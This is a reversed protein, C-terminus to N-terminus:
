TSNAARTLAELYANLDAATMEGYKIYNVIGSSDIVFTTPMNFVGYSDATEKETDLLITLGSVSYEDLFARVEDPTEAVDVALIIAGDAPQQAQFAQFAPLERKCPECWTAWFNLFVVRGAYDSLRVTMGDLTTLSFDIVPADAVVPPPPLTVPMPTAPTGSAWANTLVVVVAALLGLLPFILLIVLM